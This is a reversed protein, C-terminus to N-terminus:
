RYVRSFSVLAKLIPAASPLIRREGKAKRVEEFSEQLPAVAELCRKSTTLVPRRLTERSRGDRLAVVTRHSGLWRLFLLTHSNTVGVLVLPGEVLVFIRAQYPDVNVGGNLM